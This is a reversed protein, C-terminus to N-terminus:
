GNNEASVMRFRPAVNVFAQVVAPDFHTAQREVIFKVAADHSMPPRYLTRTTTADYVDVVAMVRGEIPIEAGRLRRPYGTGDWREHHTYVIDKAMALIADDRVGVRGEAKLIVEYGYEPHKQMEALEDPTLAGPKNLIHDPVGVKGIDHLPALSSVLDIREPTLYDKFEPHTSLQEALLRVYQQTRRSHRGTEADRTETLSLLTQIMLSQANTKERGATDARGREVTFKVLTMIALAAMVGIAPMLPSVFLGTTSLVWGAIYWLAAISIGSGLVGSMTGTSAVLGTVAVGLVLVVIGELTTGYQSRSIFDQQLLNDAVTAQVEVGVFLTDLPTAVVERTGLATTGVFVIKDQLTDAPVRGSMVDAASVYPFTQKTGRYRLLANARGDVPVVVDDVLLTATNANSVRLVLDRAGTAAMTAALALSPYVRGDLEMLLPVRRLIGDADPAANMFGSAGAAQALLPLNCVAGTAHFYQADGTDDDAHLFAPNVPHLACASSNSIDGDFRMAYGLVVRGARLIAALAGDSNVRGGAKPDEESGDPDGYRDPEAFVMDLAVTAAGMQRLRAILEGIRDRRWPWQGITSLSREDVDVIVVRGAPPRERASRVLIDYAANNFRAFSEPPFVAFVATVVVAGIGCLFV